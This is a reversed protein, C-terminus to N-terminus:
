IYLFFHTHKKRKLIIYIDHRFRYNGMRQKSGIKALPKHTHACASKSVNYIGQVFKTSKNASTTDFVANVQM